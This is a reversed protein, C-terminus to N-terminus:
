AGLSTLLQILLQKSNNNMGQINAGSPDISTKPIGAQSQTGMRSFIGSLANVGGGSPMFPAAVAGITGAAGAIDNRVAQDRAIQQAATANALRESAASQMNSQLREREFTNEGLASRESIDQKAQQRNLLEFNAILQDIDMSANRAAKGISDTTLNSRGLGRASAANAIEPIEQERLRTYRSNIAPNTISAFDRGFGIGPSDLADKLDMQGAEIGRMARNKLGLFLEPDIADASRYPVDPTLNPKPRKRFIDFLGM